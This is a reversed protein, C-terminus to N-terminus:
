RIMKMTEEPNEQYKRIMEGVNKIGSLGFRIRKETECKEVTFGKGSFNIDPPVIEINKKKAEIQSKTYEIYM